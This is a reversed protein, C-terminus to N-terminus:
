IHIFKYSILIIAAYYFLHSYNVGFSICDSFM